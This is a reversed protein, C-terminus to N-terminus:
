VVGAVPRKPYDKIMPKLGKYIKDREEGDALIYVYRYKPNSKQLKWGTNLMHHKQQGWKVTKRKGAQIRLNHIIKQDYVRGNPAIMQNTYRGKGVCIWNTAQYVTGIEGADTDSYALALRVEKCDRRLFKLSFSILKSASGTPTWYACAGRALYALQHKFVGLEHSAYVNAGGGGVAYCVVGGCLNGFFIGYHYNTTAMTGLWEYELIIKKALHYSVPKVIASKLSTDIGEQLRIKDTKEKQERIVRQYAKYKFKNRFTINQAMSKQGIM